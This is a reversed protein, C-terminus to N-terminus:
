LNEVDMGSIVWDKVVNYEKETMFGKLRSLGAIDEDSLLKPSAETPRDIVWYREDIQNDVKEYINGVYPILRATKVDLLDTFEDVDADGSIGGLRSGNQLVCERTRFRSDYPSIPMCHDKTMVLSKNDEPGDYQANENQGILNKYKDFLNGFEKSNKSTDLFPKRGMREALVENMANLNESIGFTKVKSTWMDHLLRGESVMIHRSPRKELKSLMNEEKNYSDLADWFVYEYLGKLREKKSVKM